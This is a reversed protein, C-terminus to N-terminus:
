FYKNKYNCLETCKLIFDDDRKLIENRNLSKLFFFTSYINKKGLTSTEYFRTVPLKIACMLLKYFRKIVQLSGLYENLADNEVIHSKFANRSKVVRWQFSLCWFNMKLLFAFLFCLIFSFNFSLVFGNGYKFLYNYLTLLQLVRSTFSSVRYGIYISKFQIYLSYIYVM